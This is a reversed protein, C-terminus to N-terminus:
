MRNPALNSHPKEYQVTINLGDIKLEAVFDIKGPALKTIRKYWERIEEETFVDALSKKPTTHKQKKFKGSVASGVRQTPSDPTIFGPFKTELEILERKLSDRVSEKVESKDLVFYKYNLDKIKDKLKEIRIKADETKM